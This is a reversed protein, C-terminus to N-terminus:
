SAAGGNQMSELTERVQRVWNLENEYFSIKNDMIADWLYAERPTRQPSFNKRRKLEQAMALQDRVEAEYQRLLIDLEDNELQDAWALQVLFAHKIQPLEPEGLAWQRLEALGKETITYIKRAPYDDQQQIEQTVMGEHHLEVLTRYIQNNNGSWHFIISDEFIKKLDYGSLPRVSLFGLIAYRISM